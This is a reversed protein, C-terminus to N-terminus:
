KTGENEVITLSPYCCCNKDGQKLEEELSLKMWSGKPDRDPLKENKGSQVACKKM